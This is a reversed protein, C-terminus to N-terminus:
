LKINVKKGDKKVIYAPVGVVTCNSPVDKVVVANAGINVNDGITIGGIVKAGAYIIVNNGITPADTENSYGITVQQYIKCFNGIRKAAIITSFGHEIFLSKGIIPTPIYLSSLRPLILNLIHVFFKFQNEIRKYFLCRFEKKYILLLILNTIIKNKYNFRKSWIEIDSKILDKNRSKLFIFLHFILYVYSILHIIKKLFKVSM